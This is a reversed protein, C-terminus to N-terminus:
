KDEMFSSDCSSQCNKHLKISLAHAPVHPLVGKYSISVSVLMRIVALFFSPTLWLAVFESSDHNHCTAGLFTVQFQMNRMTGHSHGMM